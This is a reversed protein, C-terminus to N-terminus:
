KMKAEPRLNALKRLEEVTLKNLEEDFKSYDPKNELEISHKKSPYLDMIKAEDKAISLCMQWDKEEYAKRYLDKRKALQYHLNGRNKKEFEKQWLTYCHRIYRKTQSDSINWNLQAYYCINKTSNGSLLMKSVELIRKDLEVKNSKSM